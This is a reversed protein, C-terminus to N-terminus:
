CHWFAYKSRGSCDAFFARQLWLSPPPWDPTQQLTDVSAYGMGSPTAGILCYPVKGTVGGTLGPLPFTILHSSFLLPPALNPQFHFIPHFYSLPVFRLSHQWISNAPIVVSGTPLVDMVQIGGWGVTHFVSSECEWTLRPCGSYSAREM